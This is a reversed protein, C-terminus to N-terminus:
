MKGKYGCHPCVEVPANPCEHCEGAKLLKGCGYCEGGNLQRHCNHKGCKDHVYPDCKCNTYSHCTPCQVAVVRETGKENVTYVMGNKEYATYFHEENFTADYTYSTYQIKEGTSAKFYATKYVDKSAQTSAETPNQTQTPKVTSQTPKETPKVNSQTPKVTNQTPKEASQTPKTSNDPAKIPDSTNESTPKTESEDDEIPPVSFNDTTPETESVTEGALKTPGNDKKKGCSAFVSLVFVLALVAALMKRVKIKTM